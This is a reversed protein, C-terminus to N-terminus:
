LNSPNILCEEEGTEGRPVLIGVMPSATPKPTAAVLGVVAALLAAIFTAKM